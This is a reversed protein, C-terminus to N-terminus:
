PCSLDWFRHSSTIPHRSLERVDFSIWGQSRWREAEDINVGGLSLLQDRPEPFLDLQTIRTPRDWEIGM